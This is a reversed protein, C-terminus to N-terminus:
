AIGKLNPLCESEDIGQVFENEYEFWKNAISETEEAPREEEDVYGCSVLVM